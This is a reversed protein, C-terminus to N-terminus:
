RSKSNTITLSPEALAAPSINFCNLSEACENISTLAAFARGGCQVKGHLVRPAAPNGHLLGTVQAQRLPQLPLLAVQAEKGM